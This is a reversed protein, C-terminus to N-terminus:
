VIQFYRLIAHPSIDGKLYDTIKQSLTGFQIFGHENAPIEIEITKRRRKGGLRYEVHVKKLM